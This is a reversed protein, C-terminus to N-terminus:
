RQTADQSEYESRLSEEVTKVEEETLGYLDYVLRDIGRDVREILMKTEEIETQLMMWEQIAAEATEEDVEPVEIQKLKEVVRLEGYKENLEKVDEKTLNTLYLGTFDLLYDKEPKIVVKKKGAFFVLEEEQTLTNREKRIGDLYKKDLKRANSDSSIQEIEWLKKIGFGHKKAIDKFTTKELDDHLKKKLTIIKEVLTIIPKQQDPTAPYIPLQEMHYTKVQAFVRGIEHYVSDYYYRMLSSNLIGALYELDVDSGKKRIIVHVSDLVCLGKDDYAVRPYDATQRFALKETTKYYSRNMHKELDGDFTIYEGNWTILFRDLDRGRIIKESNDNIRKHSM